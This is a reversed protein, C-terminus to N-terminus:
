TDNRKQTHMNIPTNGQKTGMDTGTYTSRLM